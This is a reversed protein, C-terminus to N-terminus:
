AEVEVMEPNKTVTAISILALITWFILCSRLMGPVKEAVEKPFFIDGGIKDAIPKLNDPNVLSTTLFGFIFAGFGLAFFILGSVLGVHKPFYSWACILPPWYCFGMGIPFLVGWYMFFTWWRDAYSAAYVAGVMISSGITMLLKPHVLKMLHAGFTNVLIIISM